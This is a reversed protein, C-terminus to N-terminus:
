YSLDYKKVHYTIQFLNNIKPELIHTCIDILQSEFIERM